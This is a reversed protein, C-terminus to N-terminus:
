LIVTNKRKLSKKRKPKKAAQTKSGEDVNELAKTLEDGLNNFDIDVAEEKRTEVEKKKAVPDKSTQQLALDLETAIDDEDFQIADQKKSPGSLIGDLENEIEKQKRKVITKKAPSINIPQVVTEEEEEDEEDSSDSSLDDLGLAAHFGGLIDDHDVDNSTQKANIKKSNAKKLWAQNSTDGAAAAKIAAVEAARKKMLHQEQEERRKAQQQEKSCYIEFLLAILFYLMLGAHSIIVTYQVIDTQILQRKKPNKITTKGIFDVGTSLLLGCFLTLFLQLHALIALFNDSFAKYPGFSTVVFLYMFCVLLGFVIQGSEGPLILTVVGNLLLKRSLEIVEYWWYNEDYAYYIFGLRDYVRHSRFNQKRLYAVATEFKEKKTVPEDYYEFHIAADIKAEELTRELRQPNVEMMQLNWRVGNNRATWLLSFFLLPVGVVFLALGVFAFVGYMTYMETYCHTKNDKTLIFYDGIEECKYYRIVRVAVSPYLLLLLWFYLKYLKNDYFLHNIRILCRKKFRACNFKVVDLLNNGKLESPANENNEYKKSISSVAPLHPKSEALESQLDKKSPEVVGAEVLAAKTAEYRKENFIKTNMQGTVLKGTKVCKRPIKKLKGWYVSRGMIKVIQLFLGACIPMIIAFQLSFYYNTRYICDVAAISIIDFNLSAFTRMYFAVATPWKIGYNFKMQSFIQLFSLIIKFKEPRIHAHDTEAKEIELESVIDANEAISELEGSSKSAAAHVKTSKNSTSSCTKFLFAGSDDRLYISLVLLFCVSSGIGGAVYMPISEEVNGLCKGCSRDAMKYYGLQCVDCKVLSFFTQVTM